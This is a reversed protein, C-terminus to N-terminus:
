KDSQKGLVYLHGYVPENNQQRTVTKQYYLVKFNHQEALSDIYNKQHSFRGSQNMTYDTQDTIETNFAFLGANRLAAAAGTFITTLDGVYVLADAAIILDYAEQQQNLFTAIDSQILQTYINKEAAVALMKESLDVGTLTKALAQFPVGALGTGCGLDLIDMPKRRNNSVQGVADYLLTPVKYDLGQLLHLEYHDAYADFLNTIYDPPSALLRQDQSLMTVTYQIAKNDPQLRLAERFHQLAFGLHNKALFAVAINNQAGFLDPNIKLARQYNQIASDTHGQQMNIVGLNFLIQTDDPIIEVAKLYHKKAENLMGLKLYCTALNTQTEFHHPHHEDIILFHPLAPKLQGEALLLTALQFNAAAHLPAQQLLKEYTTIAATPDLQRTYALGLNYYADLFNPQKEIALQYYHIADTLNEQAFYVTGLNNLASAYDPKLTIAQHFADAAQAFLGQSKLANGLNLYLIPNEPDHKIAQQFYDAAATFDDSQASLIGMAHLIESNSPDRRLIALYATKAADFQGDIHLERAKAVATDTKKM